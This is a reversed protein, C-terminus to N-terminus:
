QTARWPSIETWGRLAETAWENSQDTHCGTCPNPIKLQDTMSPTVFRFTHASVFSGPVGESAIKPMHCAVCQSGPSDTKHRTHEEFDPSMRATPVTRRTATWVSPRSRNECSRTTIRATLTMARRARSAEVICSARSSIM